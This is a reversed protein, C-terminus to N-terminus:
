IRPRARFFAAQRWTGDGCGELTVVINGLKPPPPIVLQVDVEEEPAEQDTLDHFRDLRKQEKTRRAQVGARVWKLERRLFDQRRSETNAEIEMREAKAALYDSYGGEHSFFRGSALEAIRDSVRDLFYRDHTVFVCAGRYDKLFGELWEISEADLHNTPEDLLLLEPEGVIARCLAVRRKEGGSLDSIIREPEPVSLAQM